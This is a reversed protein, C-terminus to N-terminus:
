MYNRLNSAPDNKVKDPTQIKTNINIGSEKITITSQLSVVTLSDLVIWNSPITEKILEFYIKLLYM